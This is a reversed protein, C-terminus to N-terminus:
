RVTWNNGSPGAINTLDDAGVTSGPDDGLALSTGSSGALRDFFVATVDSDVAFYTDGQDHKSIGSFSAFGGAAETGALIGVLNGLPIQIGRNVANIDTTQIVPVNGVGGNPGIM